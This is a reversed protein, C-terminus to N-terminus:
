SMTMSLSNQNRHCRLDYTSNNCLRVARSRITINDRSLMKYVNEIKLLNNQNRVAEDVQGQLVVIYILLLFLLILLYLKKYNKHSKGDNFLQTPIETITKGLKNSPYRYTGQGFLLNFQKFNEITSQFIFLYFKLM